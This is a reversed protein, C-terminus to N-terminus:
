VTLIPLADNWEVRHEMAEIYCDDDLACCTDRDVFDSGRPHESPTWPMDEMKLRLKEGAVNLDSWGPALSDIKCSLGQVEMKWADLLNDCIMGMTVPIHGNAKVHILGSLPVQLVGKKQLIDWSLSSMVKAGGKPIMIVDDMTEFDHRPPLVWIPTDFDEDPEEQQRKDTVTGVHHLRETWDPYFLDFALAYIHISIFNDNHMTVDSKMQYALTGDKLFKPYLKRIRFTYQPLKPKLLQFLGAVALLIISLSGIAVM